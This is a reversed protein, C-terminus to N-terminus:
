TSFMVYVVVNRKREVCSPGVKGQDQDLRLDDQCLEVGLLSGGQESLQFGDDEVVELMESKAQRYRSGGPNEDLESVDIM